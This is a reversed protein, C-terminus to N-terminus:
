GQVRGDYHAAPLDRDRCPQEDAREYDWGTDEGAGDTACSRARSTSSCPRSAQRRSLCTSSSSGQARRAAAVLRPVLRDVGSAHIEVGGEILRTRTVGQVEAAIVAV